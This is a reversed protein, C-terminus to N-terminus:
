IAENLDNVTQADISNQAPPAEEEQNRAAARSTGQNSANQGNGPTQALATTGLSLSVTLAVGTM